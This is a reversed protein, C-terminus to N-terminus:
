TARRATRAVARMLLKRARCLSANWAITLTIRGAILDRRVVHGMSRLAIVRRRVSRQGARDDPYVELKWANAGFTARGAEIEDM